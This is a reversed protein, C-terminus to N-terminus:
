EQASAKGEDSLLRAQAFGALVALTHAAADPEQPLLVAVEQAIENATRQGDCYDWILASLVDLAHGTETVPDFLLATADPLIFTEVDTRRTLCVSLPLATIQM